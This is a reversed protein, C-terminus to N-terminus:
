LRVITRWLIDGQTQSAPSLEIPVEALTPANHGNKGKMKNAYTKKFQTSDYSAELFM